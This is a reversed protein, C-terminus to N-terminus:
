PTLYGPLLNAVLRIITLASDDMTKGFLSLAYHGLLCYCDTVRSHMASLVINVKKDRDKDKKM